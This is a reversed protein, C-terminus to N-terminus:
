DTTKVFLLKKQLLSDIFMFDMIYQLYHRSLISKFTKSIGLFFLSVLHYNSKQKQVYFQADM